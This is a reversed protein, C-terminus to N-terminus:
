VSPSLFFFLFIGQNLTRSIGICRPNQSKSKLISSYYLCGKCSKGKAERALSSSPNSNETVDEEKDMEAEQSKVQLQLQSIHKRGRREREREIEGERM